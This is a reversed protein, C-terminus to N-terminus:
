AAARRGTSVVFEHGPHEHVLLILRRPATAVISRVVAHLRDREVLDAAPIWVDRGRCVGWDLMAPDDGTFVALPACVGTMPVGRVPDIWVGIGHMPEIGSQLRNALQRGYAPLRKKM